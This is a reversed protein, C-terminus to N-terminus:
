KSAERRLTINLFKEAHMPDTTQELLTRYEYVDFDSARVCILIRTNKGLMSSGFTAERTEFGGDARTRTEDGALMSPEARDCTIDDFNVYLNVQANAVPANAAPNAREHFSHAADKAQTVTGKFKVSAEGICGSAAVVVFAVQVIIRSRPHNM